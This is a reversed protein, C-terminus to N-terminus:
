AGGTGPSGTKARTKWPWPITDWAAVAGECLLMVLAAWLFRPWLPIGAQWERVDRGSAAALAGLGKIETASMPRLDSEAAPFNVAVRGLVREGVSWAYVGPRRIRESVLAGASLTLPLPEDAGDPGKLQM